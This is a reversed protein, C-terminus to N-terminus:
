ITVSTHARYNGNVYIQVNGEQVTSKRYYIPEDIKLCCQVCRTNSHIKPSDSDTEILKTFTKVSSSRAIHYLCMSRESQEMIALVFVTYYFKFSRLRHMWIKKGGSQVSASLFFLSFKEICLSFENRESPMFKLSKVLIFM